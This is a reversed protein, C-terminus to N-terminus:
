TLLLYLSNVSKSFFALLLSKSFFVNKSRAISTHIYRQTYKTGCLFTSRVTAYFRSVVVIGM